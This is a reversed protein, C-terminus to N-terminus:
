TAAPPPVRVGKVDSVLGSVTSGPETGTPSSASTVFQFVGALVQFSGINCVHWGDVLLVADVEAAVSAPWDPLPPLGDHKFVGM